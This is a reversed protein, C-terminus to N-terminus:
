AKKEEQKAAMKNYLQNYRLVFEWPLLGRWQFWRASVEDVQTVERGREDFFRLAGDVFKVTGPYTGARGDRALGEPLDGDTDATRPKRALRDYLQNYLAAFEHPFGNRLQFWRACVEPANLVERGLDDFFRLGRGVVVVVRGPSPKRYEKELEKDAVHLLHKAGADKHTKECTDSHCASLERGDPHVFVSMMMGHTTCLRTGCADCGTSHPECCSPQRCCDSKGGDSEVVKFAVAAAVAM